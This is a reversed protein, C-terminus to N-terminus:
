LITIETIRKSIKGKESDEMYRDERRYERELDGQEMSVNGEVSQLGLCREGKLM